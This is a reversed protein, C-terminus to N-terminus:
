RPQVKDAVSDEAASGEDIRLLLDLAVRLRFPLVPLDM